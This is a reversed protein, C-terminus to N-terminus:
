SLGQLPLSPALQVVDLLLTSSGLRIGQLLALLFGLRVFSQVLMPLGTHGLDPSTLIPELGTLGSVVPLLGTCASARSSPLSDSCHSQLALMPSDCRSLGHPLLPVDSRLFDPAPLALDPQGPGLASSSADFQAFSRPTLLSGAQALGVAAAPLGSCIFSRLPFLFDMGIFSPVFACLDICASRVTSMVLGSCAYNQLAMLMDLHSLGPLSALLGVRALSRASLAAGPFVLNTAPLFFELRSIGALVSSADLCHLAHSFTLTGACGHQAVLVTLGLHGSTRLPLSSDLHVPDPVFPFFDVQALQRSLLFFGAQFFDPMVVFPGTQCLSRLIPSAEAQM